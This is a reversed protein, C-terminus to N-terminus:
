LIKEIIVKVLIIKKPNRIIEFDAPSIKLLLPILFVKPDPLIGEETADKVNLKYM